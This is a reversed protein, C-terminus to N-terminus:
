NKSSLHMTHSQLKQGVTPIRLYRFPMTGESFGTNVQLWSNAGGIGDHFYQSKTMNARLRSCEDFEALVNMIKKVSSVDGRFFLILDDTFCLHTIKQEACVAHYHFEKDQRLGRLLRSLYEM